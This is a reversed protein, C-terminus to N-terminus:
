YPIGEKARRVIESVPLLSDWGKKTLYTNRLVPNKEFYWFIDHGMSDKVKFDIGSNLMTDVIKDSKENAVIMGTNCIRNPKDCTSVTYIGNDSAAVM